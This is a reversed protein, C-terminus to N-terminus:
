LKDNIENNNKQNKYYYMKQDAARILEEATMATNLMTEIGYSISLFADDIQYDAPIRTIESRIRKVIAHAQQEDTHNLCILFEDGGYRAAWDYDSRINRGIVESVAKIANDGANHGYADNIVKFNNLDIFCVSLPSYKMMANVVDASLREDVFRRNYLNTLPDRIIINNMKNVYHRFLEGESYVGAGILMNDTVDKLLELVVPGKDNVIPIATVIFVLEQKKELKIFSNNEHYARISICNDCIKGNEWYKYCIERIDEFAGGRYDLIKKQVPDVLRVSDYMKQFFELQEKLEDLSIKNM